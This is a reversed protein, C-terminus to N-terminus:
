EERELEQLADPLYVLLDSAILGPQTLELAAHDGALGHAYVAAVAADFPEALQAWFAALVGCLVDGTGGTAMGPNGTQNVYVRQGDSVVTGHGKLVVVAGTQKAFEIALSERRAQVEASRCGLLRAFEGPHPTLVTPATRQQLLETHGALANLGDADVVLPQSLAAVLRRALGHAGRGLGPGVVIIDNQAALELLEDFATESATGDENQPLPWTLYSPEYAAVVPYVERPCAVRVLGAGGRLAAAACLCAAGAMGRSGAVILIRGYRGKHSEPDRAPLRPVRTIRQAQM